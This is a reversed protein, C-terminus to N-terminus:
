AGIRYYVIKYESNLASVIIYGDKSDGTIYSFTDKGNYSIDKTSITKLVTGTSNYIVIKTDSEDSSDKVMFCGSYGITGLYEKKGNEIADKNIITTTTNGGTYLVYEGDKNTYMISNGIIAKQTLKNATADFIMNLSLDYMRGDAYLYNGYFSAETVDGILEGDGDILYRHEDDAYVSWRDAAVMYVSSAMSGNIGDIVTIKGNNDITGVYSNSSVRQNEILFIEEIIVTLDSSLGAEALYEKDLTEIDEFVCNCEIEKAKGNKYNVILTVLNYKTFGEDADIYTYEVANEDLEYSYQVLIDGNELIGLEVDDDDVYGPLTYRSVFEFKEDYVVISYADGESVTYYYDEYKRIDSPVKALPSFQFAVTLAGTVDARYFKNDFKVLDAVTSATTTYNVTAVKAATQTYLDTTYTDSNPEKAENEKLKWSQTTVTYYGYEETYNYGLTVTLDTTATETLTAVIQNTKANYIIHQEYSKTGEDKESTFYMLDGSYRVYDADTLSSVIEMKTPVTDGKYTAKSDIADDIDMTKVAGGVSCATFLTSMLMVVAIVALFKSRKM